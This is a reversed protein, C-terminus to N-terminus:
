VHILMRPCTVIVVSTVDEVFRDQPYFRRLNVVETTINPSYTVSGRGRFVLGISRGGVTQMPVVMGSDLSLTILGDEFMLGEVLRANASDLEVSTLANRVQEYATQAGGVTCLCLACLVGLVMRYLM